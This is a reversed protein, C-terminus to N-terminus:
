RVSREMGNELHRAFKDDVGDPVALRLVDADGASDVAAGDEEGHLIVAGSDKIIDSLKM